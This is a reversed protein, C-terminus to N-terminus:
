KITRYGEITATGTSGDAMRATFSCKDDKQTTCPFDVIAVENDSAIAEVNALVADSSKSKQMSHYVNVAIVAVIFSMGLIKKIM